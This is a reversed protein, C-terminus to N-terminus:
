QGKFKVNRWPLKKFDLHLRNVSHLMVDCPINRLTSMHCLTMGFGAHFYCFYNCYVYPNSLISTLTKHFRSAVHHGGDPAGGRLM